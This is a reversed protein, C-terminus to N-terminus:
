KCIAFISPLPNVSLSLSNKSKKLLCSYVRKAWEIFEDKSRKAKSWNCYQCCAVINNISHPKTQDIRDIGNRLVRDGNKCRTASSFKTGCYFCPQIMIFSLLDYNFDIDHYSKLMFGKIRKFQSLDDTNTKYLEKYDPVLNNSNHNINIIMNVFNELTMNRKSLNCEICCPVCNKKSHTSITNDVRDLGSYVFIDRNESLVACNIKKNNPAKDCYFCNKQSLEYFEEFTLDGDNYRHLYISKAAAIIPEYKRNETAIKRLRERSKEEKLCGCSKSNGSKLNTGRWVTIINGCDCICKWSPRKYNKNLSSVEEIVTLRGFKQGLLNEKRM